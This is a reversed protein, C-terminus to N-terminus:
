KNEKDQSLQFNKLANSYALQEACPESLLFNCFRELRFLQSKLSAIELNKLELESM